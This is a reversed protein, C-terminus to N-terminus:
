AERLVGRPHRKLQNLRVYDRQMVVVNLPVQRLGAGSGEEDPGLKRRRVAAARHVPQHAPWGAGGPLLGLLGAGLVDEVAHEKLVFSLM